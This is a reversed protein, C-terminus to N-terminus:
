QIIWFHQTILQASFQVRQTSELVSEFSKPSNERFGNFMQKFVMLSFSDLIFLALHSLQIISQRGKAQQQQLHQQQQKQQQLPKEQQQQQALNM